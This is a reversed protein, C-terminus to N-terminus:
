EDVPVKSFADAIDKRAQKKESNSRGAIEFVDCHTVNSELATDYIALLRKENMMLARLSGCNATVAGVYARDPKGEPKTQNYRKAQQQGREHSNPEVDLSAARECSLGKDKADSFLAPLVEGEHM